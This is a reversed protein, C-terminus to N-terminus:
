HRQVLKVGASDDLAIHVLGARIPHSGENIGAGLRRSGKPFPEVSSNAFARSAPGSPGAMGADCPM